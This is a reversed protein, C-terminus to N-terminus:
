SSFSKLYNTDFDRYSITYLEIRGTGMRRLFIQVEACSLHPGRNMIWAELGFPELTLPCTPFTRHFWEHM